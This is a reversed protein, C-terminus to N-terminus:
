RRYLAAFLIGAILILVSGGLWMLNEVPVSNTSSEQAGGFSGAGNTGDPFGNVTGGAGGPRTPAATNGTGVDDPRSSAAGNEASQDNEKGDSASNEASSDQESETPTSEETAPSEAPIGFGDPPAMGEPMEGMNPPFMGGMGGGFGDPTPMGEPMEGMEPPALEGGSLDAAAMLEPASVEATFVDDGISGNEAQTWQPKDGRSPRGGNESNGGFGGMNGGNGGMGRGMSGMDSITVSSADVLANSGTQGETTAPITGDLQGSVSEARLICFEKLTSVGKEFQEYTCFKSPDKEVYPAILEATSDILETLWGSDCIDAIFQSFHDHYQSLMQEDSFIWHAMPRDEGTSGSVPTDIPSNVTSTANNGDFGGFALNYDWPLMSMVGDDEYLYYNHIMNGTYSDGNCVFNHVVFYRMVAEADVASIDGESLKKLADILRTQDAESVDTKASSFINSYSEPADDIYQLKVDDSGMGGGFGGKDDMGGRNGDPRAMGGFGAGNMGGKFQSPEFDEPLRETIEEPLSGMIDEFSSDSINEMFGEMDFDKGNGRGGGFGMSDPKYLEGYDAGYNRQLFSQEIAEVALYLGWDEGNVTIYAFSCLPASVGFKNMMQYVVFDKMYTNDQIINNLCLKDLGHYTMSSDYHDFEIKFSYRDNGYSQVSSLSTNGKARIAINKYIEGDIVASCDIYEENTCTQLFEDWNEATIDITHMETYDFLRDEYGMIRSAPQIGFAEGNLFLGTIVLIVALIICCIADFHKHTSM